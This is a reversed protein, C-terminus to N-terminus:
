GRWFDRNFLAILALTELRGLVMVAGLVVRAAAGLEAYSIPGEGAVSALPGTNSLAAITLITSAEFSLGFLGLLAMTAAITIVFLMFFIWAVFAGERRLRRGGPGSSGVSSPHILRGMERAGHTYLAYIRLLKVGGATTAVGGGILSLGVLTLGTTELGSWYRAQDFYSSEFGTTTLFSLTTFLAGWLARLAGAFSDQGESEISGLFHRLFLFGPLIILLTVALRIEPDGTLHGRERTIADSRFTLRSVAFFLFAFILIESAFGGGEWTNPVIGSTSLTSMALIAGTTASEGVVVLALWLIATLGVYIPALRLAYRRLREGPLGARRDRLAARGASTVDTSIVEFGGLNLPALVALASVWFLLGGMWGVMARWLHLTTPLARDTYLSAGTTTLSSVMEFWSNLLHADGIAERFPVALMLPLLVLAGTLGLLQGRVTGERGRTGLAVALLLFLILFVMGSYFFSRATHLYRLQYAHIAPLFMAVAGLGQLILLFPLRMLIRQM